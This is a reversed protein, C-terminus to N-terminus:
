VSHEGLYMIKYGKIRLWARELLCPQFGHPWFFLPMYDHLLGDKMLVWYSAKTSDTM